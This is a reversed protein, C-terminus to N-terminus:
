DQGNEEKEFVYNTVKKMSLGDGSPHIDKKM